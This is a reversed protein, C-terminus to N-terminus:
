KGLLRRDSPPYLKSASWLWPLNKKKLKIDLLITYSACQANTQQTVIRIEAPNTIKRYKWTARM